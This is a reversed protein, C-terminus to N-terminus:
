NFYEVKSAKILSGRASARPNKSWGRGHDSYYRNSQCGRSKTKKNKSMNELKTKLPATPSPPFTFGPRGCRAVESINSSKPIDETFTKM